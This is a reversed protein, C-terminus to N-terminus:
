EEKYLATLFIVLMGIFFGGITGTICILARKPSDKRISVLPSEIIRFVYDNSVHALMAKKQEQEILSYLVNRMESNRLEEAKVELYDLHKDYTATDQQRVFENFERLM